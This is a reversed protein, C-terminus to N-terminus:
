ELYYKSKTQITQGYNVAGNLGRYFYIKDLISRLNKVKEVQKKAYEVTSDNAIFRENTVMVEFHYQEGLYEFWEKVEAEGLTDTVAQEVAQKTGLTYFVIDCNKIVERKAKIDDTKNYWFINKADAIYDLVREPLEDIYARYYVYKLYGELMSLIKNGAARLGKVTNDERMFEPIIQLMDIEGIKM